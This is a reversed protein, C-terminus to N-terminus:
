KKIVDQENNKSKLYIIKEEAVKLIELGDDEDLIKYAIQDSLYQKLLSNSEMNYYNSILKIFEKTPQRENREFKALLSPDINLDGAVERLSLLATERLTRIQEGFSNLMQKKMQPRIKDLNIFTTKYPCSNDVFSKWLM